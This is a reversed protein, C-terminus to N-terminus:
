HGGKKWLGVQLWHRPAMKARPHWFFHISRQDVTCCDTTAWRRSEVVESFHHATMDDWRHFQLRGSIPDVNINPDTDAWVRQHEPINATLLDLIVSGVNYSFRSSIGRQNLSLRYQDGAFSLWEQLFAQTTAVPNGPNTQFALAREQNMKTYFFSTLIAIEPDATNTPLPITLTQETYERQDSHLSSQRSLLGWWTMTNSSGPDNYNQRLLAYTDSLLRTPIQWDAFPAFQEGGSSLYNTFDRFYARPIPQTFFNHRSDQLSIQLAHSPELNPPATVRLNAPPTPIDDSDPENWPDSPMPPWKQTYSPPASIPSPSATSQAPMPPAFSTPTSTPTPFSSTPRTNGSGTPQRSRPPTGQGFRPSAHGPTSTQQNNNPLFNASTQAETPAPDVQTPRLRRPTQGRQRQHLARRQQVRDDDYYNAAYPQVHSPTDLIYTLPPDVTEKWSHKIFDSYPLYAQNTLCHHIDQYHTVYLPTKGNINPQCCYITFWYARNVSLAWSRFAVLESHAWGPRHLQQCEPRHCHDQNSLDIRRQFARCSWTRPTWIVHPGQLLFEPHYGQCRHAPDFFSPCPRLHMIHECIRNPHVDPIITQGQRQLFETPPTTFRDFLYNKVMDWDVQNIPLNPQLLDWDPDPTEMKNSSSAAMPPLLFSSHLVFSQTCPCKYWFPGRAFLVIWLCLCILKLGLLYWSVEECLHWVSKHNNCRVFLYTSVLFESFFQWRLLPLKPFQPREFEGAGPHLSCNTPKLHRSAMSNTSVAMHVMNAAQTHIWTSDSDYQSWDPEFTPINSDGPLHMPVQGVLCSNWILFNRESNLWSPKSLSLSVPVRWFLDVM